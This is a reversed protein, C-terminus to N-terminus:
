AGGSENHQRKLENVMPAFSIVLNPAFCLMMSDGDYKHVMAASEETFQKVDHTSQFKKFIAWLTNMINKIENEM